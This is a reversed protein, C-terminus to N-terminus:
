CSDILFFFLSLSIYIYLVVKRRKRKSYGKGVDSGDREIDGTAPFFGTAKFHFSVTLVDSRNYFAEEIADCHHIDLSSLFTLLPLFFSLFFSLSLNRVLIV